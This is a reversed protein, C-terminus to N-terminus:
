DGHNGGKPITQMVRFADIITSLHNGASIGLRNADEMLWAINSVAVDPFIQEGLEGAVGRRVCKRADEVPQHGMIPNPSM